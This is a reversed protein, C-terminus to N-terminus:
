TQEETLVEGDGIALFCFSEAGNTWEEYGCCLNDGANLEFESRDPSGCWNACANKSTAQTEGINELDMLCNNSDVWAATAAAFPIIFSLKSLSM